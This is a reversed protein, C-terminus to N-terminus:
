DGGEAAPRARRVAGSAHGQPHERRGAGTGRLGEAGLPQLERAQRQPSLAGRRLLLGRLRQAPGHRVAKPRADGPYYSLGTYKHEPTRDLRRAEDLLYLIKEDDGLDASYDAPKSPFIPNGDAELRLGIPRKRTMQWWSRGEDFDEEGATKALFEDREGWWAYWFQPQDDYISFRSVLNALDFICEIRENHWGEREKKPLGALTAPAADYRAYLDRAREMHAVAHRRDYRYTVLQIGQKYEARYFKGGSRTGWHPLLMYLHGTLREARAEQPTGATRRVYDEAAKIADDFLNLRLKCTIAREAAHHWNPAKAEVLAEYAEAAEKYHKLEFLRDAGQMTPPPTTQATLAALFCFAALVALTAVAFRARLHM